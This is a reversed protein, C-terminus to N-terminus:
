NYGMIYKASTGTEFVQVVELQHIVGTVLAGAPITVIDGALSRVRLSGDMCFSIRKTPWPERENDNPIIWWIHGEKPEGEPRKRNTPLEKDKEKAM